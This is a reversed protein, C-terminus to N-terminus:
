NLSPIWPRYSRRNGARWATKVEAVARRTTRDTGGFGMAVLRDHVVDARIRGRSEEVLEEVKEAFADVLQTRRHREVPDHGADRLGVYRQVTKHDTGALVAASRATRTLDFAELIEMIEEDKKSM